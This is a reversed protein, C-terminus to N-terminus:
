ILGDWAPSTFFPGRPGVTLTLVGSVLVGMGFFDGAGFLGSIEELRVVAAGFVGCIWWCSYFREFWGGVRAVGVSM